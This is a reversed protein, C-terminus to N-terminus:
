SEWAWLRNSVFSHGLRDRKTHLYRLNHPNSASQMAVCGVLEAGCDAVAQYKAPNNTMLRVRDIGLASLIRAAVGFERSDVPLGLAINADVTDLGREQLSYARIKNALGIGRGEHGRLYIVAGCGEAAIAGMAQSLQVGCDCRLSGFVDGTLCESHVRVLVGAESRGAGEVDGYVLALHEVNNVSDHFAISSFKGFSTPLQAVAIKEVRHEAYQRYRVLDAIALLPLGHREAFAALDAGRLMSGEDNVLESIVGVGSLGALTLLDVAAETHGPRSLVGGARARLPFMHGPRRLQGGDTSLDALARATAARAAAAVGTGVGAADVSVTFATQHPDTSEAVMPALGLEDARIAPMPVCVIGTTHRVIFAMQDATILEAAVVLDGENERDADDSVVIMQGACLAELARQVAVRSEEALPDIM